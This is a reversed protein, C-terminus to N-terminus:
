TAAADSRWCCAWLFLHSSAQTRVPELLGVGGRLLYVIIIPSLIWLIGLVTRSARYRNWAILTALGLVAVVSLAAVTRWAQDRPYQGIAYLTLNQTVVSFDAQYVFFNFLIRGLLVLLVTTVVTLITNGISSFLNEKMWGLIGVESAPPPESTTILEGPAVTSM